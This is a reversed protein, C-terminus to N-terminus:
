LSGRMTFIFNRGPASIGSQYSRYYQDLINDIAFQISFQKNLKFNTRVNISYWSPFGTATAQAINDEGYTSLESLPKRDNFLISSAVEFRNYRFSLSAQGFLPSIYALSTKDVNNKGEQYNLTSRFKFVQKEAEDLSWSSEFSAAVGKITSEKSNLHTVISYIDDGFPITNSGNLQYPARVIANNLHTYFGIVDFRIKEDFFTRTIGIEVEYADEPKVENNPIYAWNDKLSFKGFDDINPFHWGTAAIVNFQWNVFPYANFSFSFTPASENINVDNFPVKIQPPLATFKSVLNVYSYRVGFTFIYQETATWKYNSYFAVNLMSNGDNPYRTIGGSTALTNINQSEASSQLNSFALELGYTLRNINFFKVFDLNVGAINIAEKQILRNTKGFRRTIREEDIRQYSINSSLNTFMPFNSKHLVNMSTFLRGVPKMNAEAFRLHDGSWENMMSYSGINSATSYQLNLSIDIKKSPTYDIKQIIDYQRYGTNLQMKQNANKVMEDVGNIQAVYYPTLGYSEDYNTIRKSGIQIDGFDKYTISTLSAFTKTGFNFDAHAIKGNNVSSYQLYANGTISKKKRSGMKPKKTTYLMVGGLADSGYIAAGPGYFIEARELISNDVNVANQFHGNRYLLNNLRVGDLVLLVKNADFGRLIPTGGGFQSKQQSLKGFTGVESGGASAFSNFEDMGIIDLAFPLDKSSEEVNSVITNMIEMLEESPSIYVEYNMERLEDKTFKLTEFSDHSIFITDNSQFVDITFRGDRDSYISDKGTANVALVESLPFETIENYVRVTQAFSLNVCIFVLLIILSIRM